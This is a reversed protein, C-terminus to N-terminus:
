KLKILFYFYLNRVTLVDETSGSILNNKKLVGILDEKSNIKKSLRLNKRKLNRIVAAQSRIKKSCLKVYKRLQFKSQLDEEKFDHIYCLRKTKSSKSNNSLPQHKALYILFLDCKKNNSCKILKGSKPSSSRVKNEPKSSEIITSSMNPIFFNHFSDSYLESPPHPKTNDNSLSVRNGDTNNPPIEQILSSESEDYSVVDEDVILKEFDIMNPIFFNQSSDTDLETRNSDTSNPSIEQTEISENYSVTDEDVIIKEFDSNLSPIANNELKAREGYTLFDSSKFHCSCLKSNKYISSNPSARKVFASWSNFLNVDHFPFRFFFYFHFFNM